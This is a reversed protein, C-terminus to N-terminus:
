ARLYPRVAALRRAADGALVARLMPFDRAGYSAAIVGEELLHVSDCGSELTELVHSTVLVAVGDGALARLVQALLQNSELDLGNAPEDLVLVDRTLGLTGLIALKRRMGTSYDDISRDLPLEFARAWQEMWDESRGAARSTRRRFISLYERGTIQSYFHEDAPLYGLDDLRAPRAGITVAGAAPAVFGAIAALLTSKGAGNRGVLGHVEGAPVDLDVGRLVERTGYAVRLGQVRLGPSGDSPGGIDAHRRRM